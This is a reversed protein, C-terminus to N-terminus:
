LLSMALTVLLSWTVTGLTMASRKPILGPSSMSHRASPFAM